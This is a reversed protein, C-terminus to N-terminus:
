EAVNDEERGDLNRLPIVEKEVIGTRYRRLEIKGIYKISM